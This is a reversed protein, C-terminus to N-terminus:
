RQRSWFDACSLTIKSEILRRQVGRTSVEWVENRKSGWKDECRLTEVRGEVPWIYRSDITGLLRAEDRGLDWMEFLPINDGGVVILGDRNAEWIAFAERLHFQHQTGYSAGIDCRPTLGCQFWSKPCSRTGMSVRIESPGGLLVVTYTSLCELMGTENTHHRDRQELVAALCRDGRFRGIVAHQFPAGRRVFEHAVHWGGPGQQAWVWQQQEESADVSWHAIVQGNECGKDRNILKPSGFRIMLEDFSAAPRPATGSVTKPVVPRAAIPRQCGSALFLLLGVLSSTIRM